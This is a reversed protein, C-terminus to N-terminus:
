SGPPATTSIWRDSFSSALREASPAQDDGAERARPWLFTYSGRGLLSEVLWFRDVRWRVPSPLREPAVPRTHYVLTMHALFDPEHRFAVGLGALKRALLGVAADLAHNRDSACLVVPHSMGNGLSAVDDFAIEFPEFRAEDIAQRAHYVLSDPLIDHRGLNILSVHLRWDALPQREIRYQWRFDRAISQAMAAAAMDPRAAIFLNSGARGPDGRGHSPGAGLDFGLQRYTM